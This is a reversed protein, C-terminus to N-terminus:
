KSLRVLRYKRGNKLFLLQTGDTLHSSYGDMLQFSGTYNGIIKTNNTKTSMDLSELNEIGQENKAIYVLKWSSESYIATLQFGQFGNPNSGTTLYKNKLKSNAINKLDMYKSGKLEGTNSDIWYYFQDKAQNLSISYLLESNSKYLKSNMKFNASKLPAKSAFETTFPHFKTNGITGTVKDISIYFVGLLTSANGISSGDFTVGKKICITGTFVFRDEIRKKHVERVLIKSPDINKFKGELLDTINTESVAETKNSKFNLKIVKIKNDAQNIKYDNVDIEKLSHDYIRKFNVGEIKLHKENQDYNIITTRKVHGNAPITM